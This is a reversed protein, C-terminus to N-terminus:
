LQSGNRALYALLTDASGFRIASHAQQRVVPKAHLAVGLGAKSMMLLDNAGDGLAITQQVPIQWQKALRTLTDAKTQGTVIDGVVKGTLKGNEIGLQNSVVFDLQLRQALYDAFHTFGGSAIALKWNHSKLTALLSEIGQMIPLADRVIHLIDAPANALCDVRQTLSQAFDIKGQMALETVRSVQEGVGALKAIEDICEVGIVTSDMDMVLLGPQHLDPRHPLVALEVQLAVAVAELEAQLKDPQSIKVDAEIAISQGVLNGPYFCMIQLHKSLRTQVHALKELNLGQCFVILQAEPQGSKEALTLSSDEQLHFCVGKDWLNQLYLSSVWQQDTLKTQPVVSAIWTILSFRIRGLEIM